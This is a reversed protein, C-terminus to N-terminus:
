GNRGSFGLPGLNVLQGTRVFEIDNDSGPWVKWQEVDVHYHGAVMEPGLMWDPTRNNYVLEVHYGLYERLVVEAVMSSLDHSLWERRVLKLTRDSRDVVGPRTSDEFCHTEPVTHYVVASECRLASPNFILDGDKVPSPPHTICSPAFTM